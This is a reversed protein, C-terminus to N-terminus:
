PTCRDEKDYGHLDGRVRLVSAAAAPIVDLGGKQATGWPALSCWQYRLAPKHGPVSPPYSVAARVRRALISCSLPHIGNALAGTQVRAGMVGPSPCKTEFTEGYGAWTATVTHDANRLCHPRMRLARKSGDIFAGM